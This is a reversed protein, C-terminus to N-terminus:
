LSTVIIEVEFQYAAYAQGSQIGFTIEVAESFVQTVGGIPTPFTFVSGFLSQDWSLLDDGYYAYVEGLWDPGLNKDVAVGLSFTQFQDMNHDIDIDLYDNVGVGTPVTGFDKTPTGTGRWNAEVNIIEQVTLDATATASGSAALGTGASLGLLVAVFVVLVRAKM